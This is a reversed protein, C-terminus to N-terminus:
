RRLWGKGIPHENSRDCGGVPIESTPMRASAAMASSPLASNAPISARYGVSRQATLSCRGLHAPCSANPLRCLQAVDNASAGQMGVGPALLLGQLAVLDLAPVMHTPGFVAGIPGIEGPTLQANLEGIAVLFAQKKSPRDSTILQRSPSGPCHRNPFGMVSRCLWQPNTDSSAPILHLGVFDCCGGCQDMCCCLRSGCPRM